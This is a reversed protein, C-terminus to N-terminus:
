SPRTRAFSHSPLRAPLPPPRCQPLPARAPGRTPNPSATPPPRLWPALSQIEDVSQSPRTRAFGRSPLRAPLPPPRCQPLPARAPGRALNPSATTSPQLWPALSLSSNQGLIVEWQGILFPSSTALCTSQAFVLLHSSVSSLPATLMGCYIDTGESAPLEPPSIEAGTFVDLISYKRHCGYILQGYSSGVFQRKTVAALSTLLACMSPQNHIQIPILHLRYALLLLNRSRLCLIDLFSSLLPVISHLLDEPLDAWGQLKSM